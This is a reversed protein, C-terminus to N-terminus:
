SAGLLPRRLRSAQRHRPVEESDDSDSDAPRRQAAPAAEAPGGPLPETSDFPSAPEEAVLGAFGVPLLKATVLWRRWHDFDLAPPGKRKRSSGCLPRRKAKAKPKVPPAPSAADEGAAPSGRCLGRRPPAAKAKPAATARMSDSESGDPAKGGCLARRLKRKGAAAGEDRGSPTTSWQEGSRGSADSDSDEARSRRRPPKPEEPAPAPSVAEEVADGAEAPEEEPIETSGYRRIADKAMQRAEARRGREDLKAYDERDEEALSEAADRLQLFAYIAITLDDESLRDDMDFDFVAYLFELLDQEPANFLLGTLALLEYCTLLAPRKRKGAVVQVQAAKFLLAGLESGPELGLDLLELANQELFGRSKKFQLSAAHERLRNIAEIDGGFREYVADDHEPFEAEFQKRPEVAEFEVEAAVSAEGFLLRRRRRLSPSLELAPKAPSEPVPSPGPDDDSADAGSAPSSFAGESAPPVLAPPGEGPARQRNRRSAGSGM